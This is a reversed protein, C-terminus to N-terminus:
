IFKSTGAHEPTSKSRNRSLSSKKLKNLVNNSSLRERALTFDLTSETASFHMSTYSHFM